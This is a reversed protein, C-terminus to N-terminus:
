VLARPLRACGHLPVAQQRWLGEVALSWVLAWQLDEVLTHALALCWMAQVHAAVTLLMKLAKGRCSAHRKGCAMQCQAFFLCFLVRSPISQLIRAQLEQKSLM